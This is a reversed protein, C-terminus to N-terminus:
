KWILCRHFRSNLQITMQECHVYSKYNHFSKGRWSFIQCCIKAVRIQSSWQPFIVTARTFLILGFGTKLVLYFQTPSGHHNLPLFFFFFFRGALTPCTREIGPDPLDRPSPFSLRSWYGQRPFGMPLSAQLAEYPWLLTPHLKAVLCCFNRQIFMGPSKASNRGCLSFRSEWQFYDFWVSAPYLFLPFFRPPSIM